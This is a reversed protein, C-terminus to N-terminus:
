RGGEPWQPLPHHYVPYPPREYTRPPNKKLLDMVTKVAAELQPDHGARVLAPDQEVEVDPAIGHNEVEWKGNLGYIAWRPATIRGGDMLVPYGSIGILGGWTRMGVLPGIGAKRFYWPMADGGSGAFQNIIMVKPGFIAAVPETYDEGERSAVRSMPPRNLYDIIYDALSGGHNYREDLIAAEKGVQAFFYRNFSTYGAGGTNPLYVYAVKGGTMEDVKRRNNEIWDLHRLEHEDAVPVVTVDRADSGDAEPGVQIVTQKGATEPFFSYINDAATLNRGNVALLYEGEKVNVGPQTLPAKLEPNWNEGNFIRAFRYRGNERTYDAGLLGVQVHDTKPFDGGAVYMHGVTINGTMEKFLDNLDDRSGVGALYPRYAKEAAVRNLGHLNPDYFFDREIRWVEDYMQKWEARPDAYVQFGSFDLAGKGPEPAKDAGTIFWGKGKRYLMKEGDNSLRFLRVEHLIAETKRSELDFRSVTLPPPGYGIDVVPGESLYLVGDKGPALGVYNGAPIPLAVIRQGIGEFDIDVPAPAETENEAKEGSAKGKKVDKKGSDEDKGKVEEDDSQPPVPSPVDKRLVAAYVSRTVPHQYSSMDLWGATLGLDTSAAFYLYKGNRDFVPYMADSMGDTVQVAKGSEMSYVYVAHLQSPLQKTYALWRGDPSWAEDFEHAPNDFRDADVKVAKPHDVSTMWLNLRKDTYAIHKGDPSWVPRYFFSPPNGLDIVQPDGLGDQNRLYLAYEGSADSFYAIRAGDPSWAPDREAAGVTRTLDRIDGKEAPVTFIEGHAEFVARKGTPSIEANLIDSGADLKEFHPRVQPLDAALRIPIPSTKGTAPEFLHLSGFQEYVIGGPGASASTFDIGDNPVATTVAKTNVDYAFLAVPGNRDSLFYITDGVWMPNRDNSNDQQPIKVIESTALDAIWITKTQGGRYGKWAPEWQFNPEYALHTGDPSYSVEQVRPLPVESPLGGESPVTFLQRPDSFSKRSSRFAVKGDPTWGLVVDSGPHYTLRRPEGGAASVVYVDANGDYDGTYAVLSGDPSFVPGSLRDTGTVLRRAEGGARPAIWIEGGHAFVVQDASLSPTHLLLPPAEQARAAGAAFLGAALAAAALCRTATNVRNGKRNATPSRPNRRLDFCYLEEGGVIRGRRVV